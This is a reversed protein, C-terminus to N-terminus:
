HEMPINATEEAEPYAPKMTEEKVVPPKSEGNNHASGNSPEKEIKVDKKSRDSKGRDRDSRDGRDSRDRRRERDRSRDRRSSKKHDRGEEDRKSRRDKERDKDRDGRDRDKRSRDDRRRDSRDKSRDRRDGRDRERRDGGRDRDRRRSDDTRRSDGRDRSRVRDRSGGRRRDRSSGRDRSGRRRERERDREQELDETAMRTKGLGGGLRRPKWGQVTRGREVDVMVRRGDIKLGDASKYASHMDREKEFEVFAYGRPKGNSANKIMKVQKIKGYKEFERRLKNESTDYNIRGVFLTKFADGNANPDNHPDWLKIEEEIEAARKETKEKIRRQKKEDRTEGRTAPPTDKPDEFGIM